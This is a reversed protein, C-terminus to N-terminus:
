ECTVTKYTKEGVVGEMWGASTEWFIKGIGLGGADLRTGGQAPLALAAAKQLAVFWLGQKHRAVLHMGYRGKVWFIQQPINDTPFRYKQFGAYEACRWYVAGDNHLMAVLNDHTALQLTRTQLDQEPPDVIRWGALSDPANRLVEGTEMNRALYYGAHLFHLPGLAPVRDSGALPAAFGDSEMYMAGKGYVVLEEQAFAVATLRPQGEGKPFTRAVQFYEFPTTSTQVLFGGASGRLLVGMRRGSPSTAVGVLESGDSVTLVEGFSQALRDFCWLTKRLEGVRCFLAGDGFDRQSWKDASLRSIARWTVGLTQTPTPSPKDGSAPPEAHPPDTPTTPQIPEPETVVPPQQGPGGRVWCGTMALCAVCLVMWGVGDWLRRRSRARIEQTQVM